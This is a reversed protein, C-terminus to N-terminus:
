EREVGAIVLNKNIPNSSLGKKLAQVEVEFREVKGRM